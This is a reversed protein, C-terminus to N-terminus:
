VRVSVKKRQSIATLYLWYLKTVTESGFRNRLPRKVELVAVQIWFYKFFFGNPSRPLELCLLKELRLRHAHDYFYTYFVGPTWTLVLPSIYRYTQQKHYCDGENSTPGQAGIVVKSAFQSLV